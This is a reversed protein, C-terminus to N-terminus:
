YAHLLSLQWKKYLLYYVCAYELTSDFQFNRIEFRRFKQPNFMFGIKLRMWSISCQVQYHRMIQSFKSCGSFGFKSGWRKKWFQVGFRSRLRPEFQIQGFSHEVNLWIILCQWPWREVERIFSLFPEFNSGWFKLLNSTQFKETQSLM